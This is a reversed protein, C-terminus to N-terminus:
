ARREFLQGAARSFAAAEVSQRDSVRVLNSLFDDVDLGAAL